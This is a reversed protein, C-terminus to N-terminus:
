SRSLVAYLVFELAFLDASSNRNSAVRFQNCTCYINYGMLVGRIKITHNINFVAETNQM